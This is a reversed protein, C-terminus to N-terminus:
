LGAYEVGGEQLWCRAGRSPPVYRVLRGNATEIRPLSVSSLRPASAAVFPLYLLFFPDDLDLNTLRAFPGYAKWECLRQVECDYTYTGRQLTLGELRSANERLMADVAALLRQSDEDDSEPTLEDTYTVICLDRAHVALGTHSLLKDPGTHPFENRAIPIDWYCEYNRFLIPGVIKRIHSNLLRLSMTQAVRKLQCRYDGSENARIVFDPGIVFLMIRELIEFPLDSLQIPIRGDTRATNSSHVKARKLHAARARTIPPM